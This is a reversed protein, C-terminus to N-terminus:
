GEAYSMSDFGLIRRLLALQGIHFAEHQLLFTIGGTVSPDAVPFEQPSEREVDATSLAPLREDLLESVETWAALLTEIEPFKEVDDIATVDAFEDEFPHRYEFGLYRAMWARADLVHVAIFAMNNAGAGPRVQASADDVSALTNRLLRTNLRFIEYLPAIKPVM